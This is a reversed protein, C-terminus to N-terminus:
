TMVAACTRCANLYDAAGATPWTTRPMSRLRCPQGRGREAAQADQVAIPLPLSKVENCRESFDPALRKERLQTM